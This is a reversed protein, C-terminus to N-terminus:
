AASVDDLTIMLRKGLAIALRELTAITPNPHEANELRALNGKDMNVRRALETLSVGQRERETKLLRVVQEIREHQAFIERGRAVITEREERDVREMQDQATRRQSPSLKRYERKMPKM